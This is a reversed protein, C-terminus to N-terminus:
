EEHQGHHPAKEKLKSGSSGLGKEKRVSDPLEDAEEWEVYTKHDFHVQVVRDGEAVYITGAPVLKVFIDREIEPVAKEYGLNKTEKNFFDKANQLVSKPIDKVEIRNGEVDFAFDVLRNDIFTNRLLIGWGKRYTGEIIGTGNSLILPTGAAAGSRLNMKLGYKTPDFATRFGTPVIVSKFTCPPVLRGESAYLDYAYDDEYGQTPVVANYDKKYLVKVKEKPEDYDFKKFSGKGITTM